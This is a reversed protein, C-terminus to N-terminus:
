LGSLLGSIESRGIGLDTLELDSMSILLMNQHGLKVRQCRKRQLISFQRSLLPILKNLM